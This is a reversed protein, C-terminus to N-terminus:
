KKEPGPAGAADSKPEPLTELEAAKAPVAAKAARSSRGYSRVSDDAPVLIPAVLTDRLGSDMAIRAGLRFGSFYDELASFGAPTLFKNRQRYRLPPMAPPEGSGGNDLYDAFGDEFGDEFFKSFCEGPHAAAYDKWTEKAQSKLNHRLKIQNHYLSPENHLNHLAASYLTCGGGLLPALLMLTKWRHRAMM